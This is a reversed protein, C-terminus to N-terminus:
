LLWETNKKSLQTGSSLERTQNLPCVVHLTGPTMRSALPARSSKNGRRLVRTRWHDRQPQCPSEELTTAQLYFSKLFLSRTLGGPLNQRRLIGGRSNYLIVTAREQSSCIVSDVPFKYGDQGMECGRLVDPPNRKRSIHLVSLM